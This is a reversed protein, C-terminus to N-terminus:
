NRFKNLKKSCVVVIGSGFIEGSHFIKAPIILFSGRFPERQTMKVSEIGSFLDSYIYTRGISPYWYTKHFIVWVSWKRACIIFFFVWIKHFIWFILLFWYFIVSTCCKSTFNTRNLFKQPTFVMRFWSFVVLPFSYWFFFFITPPSSAASLLAWIKAM